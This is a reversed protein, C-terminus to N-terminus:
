AADDEEDTIERVFLTAQPHLGSEELSAGENAESAVFRPFNSVLEFSRMPREPPSSAEVWRRVLALETGKAFRRSVRNGEPMRVAVTTM